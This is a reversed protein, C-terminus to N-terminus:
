FLILPELWTDWEEEPIAADRLIGRGEEIKLEADMGERLALKAMRDQLLEKGSLGIRIHPHFGSLINIIRSVKGQLCMDRGEYMEELMRKFIEKKEEPPREWTWQCVKYLATWPKIGFVEEEINMIGSIKNNEILPFLKPFMEKSEDRTFIDSWLYIHEFLKRAGSRFLM